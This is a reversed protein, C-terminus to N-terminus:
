KINSIYKAIAKIQSKSLNKVEKRMVLEDSETTTKYGILVSTIRRASWGKVIDSRGLAHKNFKVGHCGACKASLAKGNPAATLSLASLALSTIVLTLKKM